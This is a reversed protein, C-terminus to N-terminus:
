SGVEVIRHYDFERELVPAGQVLELDSELRVVRAQYPVSLRLDGPLADWLRFLEENTLKGPVVEVSEAPGFAGSAVTNLVGSPLSPHDALVRMSWALIEQELSASTGWATLLLSLELPLTPPHTEDAPPQRFQHDVDVRYLLVSVGVTLGQSFQSATFVEFRLEAGGFM